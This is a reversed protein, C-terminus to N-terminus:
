RFDASPSLNATLCPYPSTHGPQVIVLHTELTMCNFPLIAEISKHGDVVKLHAASLSSM